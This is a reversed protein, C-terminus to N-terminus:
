NRIYWIAEYFKLYWSDQLHIFKQQETKSLQTFLNNCKIWKLCRCMMASYDRLRGNLYLLTYFNNYSYRLDDFNNIKPELVEEYEHQITKRWRDYIFEWPEHKYRERYLSIWIIPIDLWSYKKFYYLLPNYMKDNFLKEKFKNKTNHDLLGITNTLHTNKWNLSWFKSVEYLYNIFEM